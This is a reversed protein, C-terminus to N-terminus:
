LVVEHMHACLQPLPDHTVVIALGGSALHRKLHQVVHEFGQIDLHATPEDLLWLPREAMLLRAFAGRRKQGASLASVPHDLFRLLGVDAAVAELRSADAGFFSAMFSLNDRLSLPPSLGDQHALWHVQERPLSSSRDGAVDVCFVGSEFSLFGLLARLLSSKGAGNAGRVVLAQGNSLTFSLGGFLKRGGRMLSLGEATLSIPEFRAVGCPENLAPQSTKM